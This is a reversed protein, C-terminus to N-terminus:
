DIRVDYAGSIIRNHDDFDNPVTGGILGNPSAYQVTTLILKFGTPKLDELATIQPEPNVCDPAAALLAKHKESIEACAALAPLTALAARMPGCIIKRFGFM